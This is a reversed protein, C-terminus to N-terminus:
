LFGHYCGGVHFKKDIISNIIATQQSSLQKFLGWITGASWIKILLSFYKIAVNKMEKLLASTQLHAKHQHKNVIM